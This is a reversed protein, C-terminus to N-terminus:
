QNKRTVQMSLKKKVLQEVTATGSSAGTIVAVKGEFKKLFLVLKRSTFWLVLQPFISNISSKLKQKMAFDFLISCLYHKSPFVSLFYELYCRCDNSSLLSSFANANWIITWQVAIIIVITYIKENQICTVFWWTHCM